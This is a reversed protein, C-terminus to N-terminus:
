ENPLQEVLLNNDRLIQVFSHVDATATQVDVEYNDTLAKILSQDTQESELLRFLFEGTENLSALGSLQRAAEQSPVAITEGLINRLCFGSILRM